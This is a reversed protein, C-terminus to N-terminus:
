QKFNVASKVSDEWRIAPAKAMMRLNPIGAESQKSGAGLRANRFWRSDHYAILLAPWASMDHGRRNHSDSNLVQRAWVVSWKLVNHEKMVKRM